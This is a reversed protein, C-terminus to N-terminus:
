DEPTDLDMVGFLCPFFGGDGLIAAISTLFDGQELDRRSSSSLTGLIAEAISAYVSARSRVFEDHSRATHQEYTEKTELQLLAM